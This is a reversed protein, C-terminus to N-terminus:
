SGSVPANARPVMVVAQGNLVKKGDVTCLTDLTVYGTKLDIAEVRVRITLESGPRVPRLFNLSQSIYIAGNGPFENGLVASIYSGALLGHAIIGKFPTTEAYAPDLHIPNRDGSVAAFAEIAEVSVTQIKTHEQGISLSELTISNQM